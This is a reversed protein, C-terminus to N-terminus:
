EDVGGLEPPKYNSDAVTQFNFIADGQPTDTSIKTVNPDRDRLGYCAKLKFILAPARGVQFDGGKAVDKLEGLWYSKAVTKAIAKAEAFEEINRAWANLTEEAVRWHSAIECFHWGKSSLEIIEDCYKKKYKTPQGGKSRDKDKAM